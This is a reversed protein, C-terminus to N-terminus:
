PLGFVRAANGGLIGAREDPSLDGILDEIGRWAEAFSAGLLIVPWNSGAMVREPGFSDIVFDSYRKLAGTSWKWRVVLALGASLKVTMNPLEAARAIQSAWPEWGNEPVPPNGMHNLAVKLDPLRRTMELLADFQGDNVPIGEFVLGAKAFMGLSEMVAPQLLWQPDPEYAILHRMGVFRANRRFRELAAACQKPDALPVWGVVGAVYDVRDALGLYVETERLDNLSQVLITKDIGCEVLLPRLDDETYDSDLRDGVAPPFSHPFDALRWFHQHSDIVSM